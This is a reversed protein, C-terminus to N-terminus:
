GLSLVVGELLDMGEQMGAEMGSGLHTFRVEKSGHQVRLM